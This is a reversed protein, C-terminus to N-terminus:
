GITIVHVPFDSIPDMAGGSFNCAAVEVHGASAVRMGYMIIGEQIAAGITVVPVEGVKAGSVSFIVTNCRGNPIGSLSVHGSISAGAIDAVTLSNSAVESTGVASSAIESAGVSGPGLDQSFLSDNVVEGGDIANDAVETANVANTAIDNALISENAIEDSGVADTALDVASLSGDLVKGGGVAEAAIKETTVAQSHIDVTKVEGNVIDESFVTNAAYATGTGLAIMLALFSCVNAFTLGRRIRAVM